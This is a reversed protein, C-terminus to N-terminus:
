LIKILNILEEKSINLTDGLFLIDKIKEELEKLKFEKILDKNDSSVYSGKGPITYILGDKELEEYARKTTIVSVKLDSALARISPLLENDKLENNFIANKICLSIQEYIPIGSSKSLIINM